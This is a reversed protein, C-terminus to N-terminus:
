IHAVQRSDYDYYPELNEGPLYGLIRAIERAQGRVAGAVASDYLEYDASVSSRKLASLYAVLTALSNLRAQLLSARDTDLTPGTVEGSEQSSPPTGVFTSTRPPDIPRKKGCGKCM